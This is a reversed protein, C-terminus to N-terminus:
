AFHFRFIFLISRTLVMFFHALFTLLFPHLHRVLTLDDSNSIKQMQGKCWNEFAPTMKGNAGFNDVADKNSSKQQQTHGANGAAAGRTASGKQVSAVGANATVVGAAPTKAAAGGWANSGGTAAINAWGGGSRQNGGEAARKAAAKAEEQQIESMSKKRGATPGAAVGGWAPAAPAPAVEPVPSPERVAAVQKKSKPQKKPASQPAPTEPVVADSGGLGLMMKLQVSQDNRTSAEAALRAEDEAKVRAAEEEARRRSEEEAKLRSQAELERQQAEAQARLAEQEKRKLEALAAQEAQKQQAEALARAEDVKFQFASGPDPFYTSLPRFPGSNNQSIPLNGKFYGAELWQRM